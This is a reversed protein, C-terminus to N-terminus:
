DADLLTQCTLRCFVKQEQRSVLTGNNIPVQRTSFGSVCCAARNPEALRRPPAFGPLVLHRCKPPRPLWGGRQGELASYVVTRFPNKALVFLRFRIYVTSPVFFDPQGATIM